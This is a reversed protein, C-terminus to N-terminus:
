SSDGDEVVKEEFKIVEDSMSYKSLESEVYHKYRNRKELTDGAFYDLIKYESVLDFIKEGIYVPYSSWPYATPQAIINAKVPNLHIYKSTYIFYADDEILEGVYRGQFLHGIYNYKTNYHNSYNTLIYQMIKGPKHDITEIQLHFHNTMLCYSILFFPYLEQAKMLFFLFIQYDDEDQFITTRRNGRNMIHYKAGPYWIRPKRPIPIM